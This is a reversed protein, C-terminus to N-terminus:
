NVSHYYAVNWMILDSKQELPNFKRKPDTIAMMYSSSGNESLSFIDANFVNNEPKYLSWESSYSYKSDPPSTRTPKTCLWLNDKYLLLSGKAYDDTRQKSDESIKTSHIGKAIGYNGLVRVLYTPIYKIATPTTNDVTNQIVCWAPNLRISDWMSYHITKLELNSNTPAETGKKIAGSQASTYKDRVNRLSLDGKVTSANGEYTVLQMLPPESETLRYLPFWKDYTGNVSDHLAYDNPIKDTGYSRVANYRPSGYTFYSLTHVTDPM